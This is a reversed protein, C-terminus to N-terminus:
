SSVLSEWHQSLRTLWVRREADYGYRDYTAQEGPLIHGVISEAVNTPCGLASLKTRGTRRLDHPAWREVPLRPRPWRPTTESYPMHTWVAVGIAKQEIHGKARRPSPFLYGSAPAIALRREVIARARGILPVRLDVLLPNRRMKLKAVPITWWLENEGEVTIENRHMAVIEVGRCCTWLYLTLVDDVDRSFNPLWPLLQRMEDDDLARKTPRGNREGAVVKGKSPLKGRLVLRWWNPTDPPLRGADLARDWAAGLHGKLMRTMVPTDRLGHILDFAQTRTLKAAPTREIPGLYKDFLRAAERYTKPAVTGQYAALHENCLVRVTYAAGVRAAVAVVREARKHQVPDVGTARQQRAAEWAGMAKAFSMAPWQGLKQQRLKGDTPSRYRYTWTRTSATAILRLGPADNVTLHDGPALLKAARADFM